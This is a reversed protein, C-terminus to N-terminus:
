IFLEIRGSRQQSSFAMKLRELPVRVPLHAKRSGNGDIVTYVLDFNLFDFWNLIKEIDQELKLFLFCQFPQITNPEMILPLRITAPDSSRSFFIEPDRPSHHMLGSFRFGLNLRDILQENGGISFNRIGVNFLSAQRFGAHHVYGPLSLTFMVQKREKDTNWRFDYKGEHMFNLSIRSHRDAFSRFSALAVALVPLAALIWVPVVILHFYTSGLALLDLFLLLWLLADGSLQSLFRFFVNM